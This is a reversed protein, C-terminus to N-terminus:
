ARRAVLHPARRPRRPHSRRDLSQPTGFINTSLRDLFGALFPGVVFAILVCFRVLTYLASFIRGRLEDDVSEHLLTFGLVYVSGACVGLVGVFISAFGLASTSAAILLSVAPASCRRRVGAAEPHASSVGLARGRRDRRGRRARLVLVGFGAAGAGLV